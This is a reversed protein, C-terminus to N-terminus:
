LNESYSRGEILCQSCVCQFPLDKTACLNSYKCDSCAFDKGCILCSQLFIIKEGNLIGSITEVLRDIDNYSKIRFLNQNYELGLRMLLRFKEKDMYPLKFSKKNLVVM